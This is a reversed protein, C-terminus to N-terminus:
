LRFLLFHSYSEPGYHSWNKDCLGRVGIMQFFLKLAKSLSAHRQQVHLLKPYVAWFTGPHINQNEQIQCFFNQCFDQPKFFRSIQGFIGAIAELPRSFGQIFEFLWLQGWIPGLIAKVAEYLRLCDWFTEFLGVHSWIAKFPRLHGRSAEFSPKPLRTSYKLM